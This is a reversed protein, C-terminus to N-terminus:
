SELDQRNHTSTIGYSLSLMLAFPLLISCMFIFAPANLDSCNIIYDCLAARTYWLYNMESVLKISMSFDSIEDM